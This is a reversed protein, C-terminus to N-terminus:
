HLLSEKLAELGAWKREDLRFPRQDDAVTMCDGEGLRGTEGAGRWVWEACWLEVQALLTKVAEQLDPPNGHKNLIRKVM